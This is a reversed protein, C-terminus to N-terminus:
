SDESLRVTEQVLAGSAYSKYGPLRRRAYEKVCRRGSLSVYM